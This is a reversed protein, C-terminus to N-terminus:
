VKVVVCATALVAPLLSAVCFVQASPLLSPLAIDLMCVSVGVGVHLVVGCVCVAWLMCGGVWVCWLCVAIGGV